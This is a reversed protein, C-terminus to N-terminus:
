PMAGSDIKVRGRVWIETGNNRVVWDDLDRQAQSADARARIVVDRGNVHDIVGDADGRFADIASTAEGTQANIFVKEEGHEGRFTILKNGLDDVESQADSASNIFGLLMDSTVSRLQDANGAAENTADTVDKWRRAVEAVDNNLTKANTTGQAHYSNEDQVLANIREQVERQSDLDGANARIATNLDLGLKNADSQVNKWEEARDKNFMLDSANSILAATDLYQSGSEAADRYANSLRERLREAQEQQKELEATILGLGVAGAAVGAAAVLGGPGSGALTAALGGLTDQGVQGLDALNGRVSSVAEGLNQGIEQSVEGAAEGLKGFGKKGGTGIDDVADETRKAQRQADKLAEELRDVGRAGDRGADGAADGLDKLAEEAKDLPKIVGDRIGQDFAQTDAAIAIEHAKAM